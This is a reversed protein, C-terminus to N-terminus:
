MKEKETNFLKNKIFRSNDAKCKILFLNWNCNIIDCNGLVLSIFYNLFKEFDEEVAKCAPTKLVQM